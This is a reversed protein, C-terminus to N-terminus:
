VYETVQATGNASAWIGYLVNGVILQQDLLLFSNPQMVIFANASTAPTAFSLRLISTSDNAISVGKRNANAALVTVSTASSAVSTTTPTRAAVSTPIPNGSDNKVEVDGLSITGIDIRADGGGPFVSM